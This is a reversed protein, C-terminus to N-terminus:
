GAQHLSGYGCFVPQPFGGPRDQNGGTNHAFIRYYKTQRALLGTHEYEDDQSPWSGELLEWTLGDDSVDIRYGTPRGGTDPDPAVWELKLSTPGTAELTVDQVQGPTQLGQAQAGNPALMIFAALAGVVAVAAILPVSWMLKRTKRSM